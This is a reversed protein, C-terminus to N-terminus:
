IAKVLHTQNTDTTNYGLKTLNNILGTNQTAVFFASVGTRKAEIEALVLTAELAEARDEKTSEPNSIFWEAWALPSNTTYVFVALCPGSAETWAIYGTSPLASAPVIPWKHGVWWSKLIDYHAEENYPIVAKIM